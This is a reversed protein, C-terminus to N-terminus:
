CWRQLMARRETFDRNLDQTEASLPPGFVSNFLGMEQEALKPHQVDADPRLMMMAAAYHTLAEHRFPDTGLDLPEDEEVMLFDVVQRFVIMRVTYVADPVKALLLYPEPTRAIRPVFYEPRDWDKEDTSNWYPVEANLRQVTIGRLPKLNGDIWVQTPEIRYIRPHLPYRAQGAVTTIECFDPDDEVLVGALRIVAENYARNLANDIESDAVLYDPEWDFILKRVLARLEGLNM